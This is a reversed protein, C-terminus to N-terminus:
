AEVFDFADKRRVERATSPSPLHATCFLTQTDCFRGFLERRSQGAQRSDYDSMM